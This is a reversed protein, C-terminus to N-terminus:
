GRANRIPNKLVGIGEIECEIEQGHQLFWTGPGEYGVGTGGPSGTSVVDGAEFGGQSYWAIQSPIRHIQLSTNSDQRAEGNVRTQLRLNHPDAIEDRTVVWPGLPAATPFNKGIMINGEKREAAQVDRASVDNCITYGFVVDAWKEPAVNACDVGIVIALENEYDLKQTWRPKRITDNPGIVCSANKIFGNPRTYAASAIEKAHDSYNRGVAMIKGPRLPALLEVHSLVVSAAPTHGARIEAEAADLAARVAALGAEGARICDILSDPMSRGGIVTLDLAHGSSLLVGFHPNRVRPPRFTLLKM